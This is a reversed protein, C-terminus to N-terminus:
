RYAHGSLEEPGVHAQDSGCAANHHRFSPTTCEGVDFPWSVCPGNANLLWITLMKKGARSAEAIAMFLMMNSNARCGFDQSDSQASTYLIPSWGRVKLSILFRLTGL